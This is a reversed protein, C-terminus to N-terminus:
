AAEPGAAVAIALWAASARPAELEGCGSDACAAVEAGDEAGAGASIGVGPSAEAGASAGTGPSTGVGAVSDSSGAVEGGLESRSGAAVVGAPAGVEAESEGGCESAAETGAEGEPEAEARVEWGPGARSGSGADPAAGVTVCPTFSEFRVLGELIESGEAGLTAPTPVPDPVPEPPSAEAPKPTPEPAPDTPAFETTSGPTPVTALSSGVGDIPVGSAAVTAADGVACGDEVVAGPPLPSRAESTSVVLPDEGSEVGGAAGGGGPESAGLV